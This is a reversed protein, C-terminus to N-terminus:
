PMVRQLVTRSNGELYPYAPQQRVQARMVYATPTDTKRFRYRLVYHGGDRTRYRRFVRWGKGSKVQLVVVVNDNHPGPITGSFVAYAHNHVVKRQPAFTPHVTTQTLAQASLQRQDPRYIATLNRSPGAGIAFRYNGDRDTLAIGLFDRETDTVVTSFVCLPAGVVGGGAGRLSGLLTSGEGESVIISHAGSTGFGASLSDAGGVDSRVCDYTLPATVPAGVNGEADSVWLRLSYTGADKPTEIGPIAEAGQAGVNRTTVVVKGAGNLVQYHAADIPSGGDVINHWRVDFGQASRSTDPSAVSLGQPAAPPTTDHPIPALAAPGTFGVEDELRVRLRYEGAQAPGSLNALETPNTASVVQEPVVVTGAADIVEYHTKVIPSGQDPPLSFRAGFVPLYRAPNASTVELGAPAGPATNDTRITREDCSEGGSGNLNGYQAYDQACTQLRHAGDTLSATGLTFSQQVAAGGPCPNYSRAFEGNAQSSGLDCQGAAKYDIRNVDAGDLRAQQFRLGSGQDSVNWSVPQAGRVWQGQLLPSATNVFGIQAPSEDSLIFIFTNAEAANFNSRDCGGARVCQLEFTFRTFDLYGGFPWLHAGFINSPAWQDGSNPLGAGQTLLQRQDGVAGGGIWFRARWGENFSNPERTYGGAARFHVFPPTDYMVGASAWQFANGGAQNEVIRLFAHDGAPDPAPGCYNEVNFAGAANTAVAYANSGNNAACLVAKYEAAKASAAGIVAIAVAILLLCQALLVPRRAPHSSSIM